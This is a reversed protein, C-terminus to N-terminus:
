VHASGQQPGSPPAPPPRAEVTTAAAASIAVPPLRPVVGLVPILNLAEVDVADLITDNTLVRTFAYAVAAFLAISFGALAANTRGGRAPRTPRYAPDIIEMQDGGTMEAASTKLRARELSKRLDEDKAKADSAGRLLRAWETELQVLPNM